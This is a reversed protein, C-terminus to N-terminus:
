DRSRGKRHYKKKAGKEIVTIEARPSARDIWHKSVESGKNRFVIIRTCGYMMECERMVRRQDTHTGVKYYPNLPAIVPEIGAALCAQLSRADRDRIVWVAEWPCTKLAEVVDDHDPYSEDVILGVVENEFTEIFPERFEIAWGRM